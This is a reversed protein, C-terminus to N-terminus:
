KKSNEFNPMKVNQWTVSFWFKGGHVLNWRLRTIGPQSITIFGNQFQRGDAMKFKRFKTSHDCSRHRLTITSRRVFSRTLRVIFPQSLGFFPKWCLPQGGNQTQFNKISQWTVTRPILIQTWEGLKMSIPHSVALIHRYFWKWCPPRGGNQNKLILFKPRHGTGSRSEAEECWIQRRDSLLDKPYVCLFVIKLIAATMANCGPVRYETELM